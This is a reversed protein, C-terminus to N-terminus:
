SQRSGGEPSRFLRRTGNVLRTLLGAEPEPRRSEGALFAEILAASEAPRTVMFLHGDDIMRQEAGPILATLIRGNVPRVLPDDSGTLVLTPQQLSWLWPLSTWGAIALLQYLYGLSHAGHMAATHEGVLSPNKRFDGGYIDAAIKRMYHKDVYRRPTAMKWMV